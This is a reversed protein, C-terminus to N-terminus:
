IVIIVYLSLFHFRIKIFNECSDYVYVAVMHSVNVYM